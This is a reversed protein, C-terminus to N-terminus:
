PRRRRATWSTASSSSSCSCSRSSPCSPGRWCSGWDGEGQGSQVRLGMLGVQVTRSSPPSTILVFPWFFDNWAAQFALIANAMLAPRSNPLVVSWLVRLRSAGDVIAAEEIERPFGEFFQKTLLVATPFSVHYVLIVAWPTNLLTLDRMVLYNSIFTVQAPITLSLIVLAFVVERGRFRLRALAYGALTAFAMILAVRGLAVAASNLLWRGFLREGTAIDVTENVLRRYNNLMLGLAGPAANDWSAVRGRREMRTVPLSSPVLVQDRPAEATLPLREVLPTAGGADPAYAIRWTFRTAPWDAGSGDPARVTLSERGAESVVAHDSAFETTLAAAVASGPVRRPVDVTPAVIRTGPPAAYTTQFLVEGGPGFGGWLPGGGAQAGLDAAAAWAAPSVQPFVFRFPTELPDDKLSALLAVLFTGLALTGLLLLALWTWALSAAQRRRLASLPLRGPPDYAAALDAM